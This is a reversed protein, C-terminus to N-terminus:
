ATVMTVAGCLALSALWSLGEPGFGFDRVPPHFFSNAVLASLAISLWAPGAGAYWATIAVASLFLAFFFVFHHAGLFASPVVFSGAGAAAVAFFPLAYRPFPPAFNISAQVSV